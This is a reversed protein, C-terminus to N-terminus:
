KIIVKKGNLIYLGKRPTEVRQGKFNYYIGGNQDKITTIGNITSHSENDEWAFTYVYTNDKFTITVKEIDGDGNQEYLYNYDWNRGEADKHTVVKFLNKPLCGLYPYIALIEFFDDLHREKTFGFLACMVPIATMDSYTFSMTETDGWELVTWSSLNDGNWEWNEITTDVESSGGEKEKGVVSVLQANSNYTFTYNINVYDGDLFTKRSVIRGDSITYDYSDGDASISITNETYSYTDRVKGDIVYEKINGTDDYRLEAAETKKGDTRTITKIRKAGSVPTSSDTIDQSEKTINTFYGPSDAGGDIRAYTVDTYNKDFPTGKGGVLKYCSGFMEESSTVNDTKWSNGVIIKTLNDCYRFMGRMNTVNYTNFNSLDLSTIGSCGYFMNNMNVVNSTNFHFLDISSLGSCGYFMYGVNTVSIIDFSSVDISSLGSCGYFMSQMTIVKRTDFNGIDLTNLNSCGEFMSQMDTVNSTDFNSVDLSTLGMCKNFMWYMTSVKSTDFCSLDLSILNSCGAFMAYMDTVNSTKFNSVDLIALNSCGDFMMHMNTVNRTDFNSVDLSKLGSCGCFLGEMDTVNSTNFRSVDITSLNSCRDFMSGLNTVNNTNFNSVDISVLSICGYFLRYMSTVNGTNFHSVDVNSLSSCNYFMDSMDTVNSTDLYKLNVIETLSEANAFWLATSKPRAKAYTSEFFVKKLQLCDWKPPNNLWKYNTNDTDYVNDGKPKEGYKFTLTGTSEDFIAYGQEDAWGSLSMFVMILLFLM